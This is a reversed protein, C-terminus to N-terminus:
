VAPAPARRSGWVAPLDVWAVLALAPEAAELAWMAASGSAALVTGPDEAASEWTRESAWM